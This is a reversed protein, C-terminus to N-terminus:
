ASANSAWVAGGARLMEAVKDGLAEAEAFNRVPAEHRVRVL